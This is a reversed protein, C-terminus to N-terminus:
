GLNIPQCRRTSARPLGNRHKLFPCGVSRFALATGVRSVLCPDGRRRASRRIPVARPDRVGPRPALAGDHAWVSRLSTPIITALSTGIAMHALHDPDGGLLPLVLLLAPVVIFGGGIGFMGAAFGSALGAVVMAVVPLWLQHAMAMM